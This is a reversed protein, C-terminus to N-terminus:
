WFKLFMLPITRDAVRQIAKTAADTGRKWLHTVLESKDGSVRRGFAIRAVYLRMYEPGISLAFRQWGITRLHTTTYEYNDAVLNGNIRFPLPLSQEFDDLADMAKLVHDVTMERDMKFFSFTIYAMKAIVIHHLLSTHSSSESANSPLSGDIDSM